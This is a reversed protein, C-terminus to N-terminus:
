PSSTGEKESSVVESSSSPDQVLDIIKPHSKEATLELIKVLGKDELQKLVRLTRSTGWSLTKQLISRSVRENRRKFERLASLVQEEEGVMGSPTPATPITPEDRPAPPEVTKTQRITQANFAQVLKEKAAHSEIQEFAGLGKPQSLTPRFKAYFEEGAYFVYGIREKPDLGHLTRALDMGFKQGYTQMEGELVKLLVRLNAQTLVESLDKITQTTMVIGLGKSRGQKVIGELMSAANRPVEPEYFRHVEDVIILAKLEETSPQALFHNLIERLLFWSVMVKATPSYEYASLSLIALRNKLLEELSFDSESLLVKYQYLRDLKASIKRRQGKDKVAAMFEEFTANEHRRWSDLLVERIIERFREDGALASLFLATEDANSILLEEVEVQPRKLLNARFQIGSNDLTYIRTFDYARPELLKFQKFDKKSSDANERIMGTFEGIPDIVLVPLHTSAAEAILQAVRTKGSGIAGTVLCHKRLENLDIMFPTDTAEFDKEGKKMCLLGLYVPRKIKDYEFKLELKRPITEISEVQRLFAAVAEAVATSTEERYTTRVIPLALRANFWDEVDEAFKQMLPDEKYAQLLRPHFLGLAEAHYVYFPDKVPEIWLGQQYARAKISMSEIKDIEAIVEKLAEALRKKPCIHVSTSYTWLLAVAYGKEVWENLIGSAGSLESELKGLRDRLNKRSGLVSELWQVSAGSEGTAKLFGLQQMMKEEDATGLERSITEHEEQMKQLHPLGKFNELAIKPTIESIYFATCQFEPLNRKLYEMFKTIEQLRSYIAFDGKVEMAKIYMHKSAKVWFFTELEGLSLTILSDPHWYVECPIQEFKLIRKFGLEELIGM